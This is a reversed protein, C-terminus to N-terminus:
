ALGRKFKFLNVNRCAIAIFFWLFFTVMIEETVQLTIDDILILIACSICFLTEKFEDIQLFKVRKMVKKILLLIFGYYIVFGLVGLEILRKLVGSETVTLSNVWSSDWSGTASVGIGLLINGKFMELANAWLLLRGLNGADGSWDFISRIRHFYFDLLSVGTDFPVFFVFCFLPSVFLLIKLLKKKVSSDLNCLLFSIALTVAVLPGRSQTTFIACYCIISFFAFYKLNFKKYLYLNVLSGLGLIIGHSLYSRTFVKTRFAINTEGEWKIYESEYVGGLIYRGTSYELFSLLAILLSFSAFIKFVNTLNIKNCYVLGTFLISIYFIYEYMARIFRQPNENIVGNFIIYICFLVYLLLIKPNFKMQWFAFLTAFIICLWSILTFLYPIKDWLIKSSFYIM